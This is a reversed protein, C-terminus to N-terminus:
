RSQTPGNAFYRLARLGPLFFYGGGRVTIFQPLGTLVRPPAADRPSSFNGTYPCTGVATRNGLLPDSEESLGNFKTSMVWANQVFEFQRSINANLCVFHIGRKPDDKPAPQLADAIKLEPGYERGRRLIRHFRASAMLDERYSKGCFGLMRLGRSLLWGPGGPLDANRPNARRTHAGFPCRSGDPDGDYTFRNPPDKPRDGIGPIAKANLPVLPEGETTRGVIRAALRLREPADSKAAGELFRWFGSVDQELQRMVLYTGNRGLDMKGPQDEAHLLRDAGREAPELLPRDTYKGYENPYGLLFEGPTVVNTYVLEDKGITRQRRWDIQPQSIGDKFGFPEYGGLNETPLIVLTEFAAEFSGGEVKARWSALLGGKALLIVLVHPEIGEQGWEWSKPDSEGVDGLRRSRSDEGAIGSQFEASFGALVDNPVGLARLGACTFAVQLAVEPPPSQFEATAVPAAACWARAAGADRILLLLYCAETLAGYGFRVLGQVDSADIPPM